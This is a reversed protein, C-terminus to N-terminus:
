EVAFLHLYAGRIDVCCRGNPNGFPDFKIPMSLTRSPRGAPMIAQSHHMSRPPALGILMKGVLISKAV